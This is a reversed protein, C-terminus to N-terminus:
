GITLGTRKLYHVIIEALFSAIIAEVTLNILITTVVTLAVGSPM